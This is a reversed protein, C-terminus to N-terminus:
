EQKLQSAPNIRATSLSRLSVTFLALGLTLAGSFLFVSWKVDIHNPYQELFKNMVYWGIPVGIVFAVIVLVIFDKSLLTMLNAMSAGLVKRISIEKSRRACVFSVLAFLGMCGIAIGVIAFVMIFNSLKQEDTYFKDLQDSLISYEFFYDPHLASWVQSTHLLADATKGPEIKIQAQQFNWKGYIYLHPPVTSKLGQSHYDRIVGIVTVTNSGWYILKEGLADEVNKFGMEHAAKENILALQSTDAPIFNRGALLPVNYLSLYEPDIWQLRFTEEGNLIGPHKTGGWWHNRDSAPSALGFAVQKIEPHQLLQQKFREQLLVSDRYPMAVTLINERTFGLDTKMFFRIQQIGIVMCIIMVQAITFQVIVLSKRLSIKTGSLVSGQNRFISVPKFGSLILAPYFGALITVIGVLGALYSVTAADWVKGFNVQTNFFHDAYPLLLSAFGCALCVSLSVMVATETFFQIVISFRSGGMVKRIGIEKSRVLAQATALNVFNISAILVLFGAISMLVTLMWKPIVYNFTDTDPDFHTETIPLLDFRVYQSVDKHTRLLDNFKAEVVKANAGPKLMVYGHFWSDGGDWYDERQYDDQYKVLTEYSMFMGFQFESQVPLKAIIGSVTLDLQNDYRIVKGIPDDGHFLKKATPEDLVVQFPQALSQAVSGNIWHVDIMKLFEPHIFAGADPKVSENGVRIVRPTWGYVTAVSEVEPVQERLAKIAGQPVHSGDEGFKDHSKIQYLRSAGSHYGDFSYEFRVIMLLIIAVSLGLTLGVINVTSYARNRLLSRWAVTLFNKLMDAQIVNISFKNRLLIGPRFFTFVRWWLRRGARNAGVQRCDIYYQEIIDGEIGEYLTAPCVWSLIRLAAGALDDNLM